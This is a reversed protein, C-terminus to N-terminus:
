HCPGRHVQGGRLTVVESTMWTVTLRGEKRRGDKVAGEVQSM